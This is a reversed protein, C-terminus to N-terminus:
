FYSGIIKLTCLVRKLNLSVFTNFTVPYFLYVVHCLLWFLVPTALSIGCYLLLKLVFIVLSLLSM